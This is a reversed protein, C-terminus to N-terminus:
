ARFAQSGLLVHHVLTKCVFLCLNQRGVRIGSRLLALVMPHLATATALKKILDM